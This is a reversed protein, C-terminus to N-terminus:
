WLPLNTPPVPSPGLMYGYGYGYLPRRPRGLGCNTETGLPKLSATQLALNTDDHTGLESLQTWLGVRVISRWNGSKFSALGFSQTNGRLPVFQRVTTAYESRLRRCTGGVVCANSGRAYVNCM